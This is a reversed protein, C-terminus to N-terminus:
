KPSPGLSPPDLGPVIWAITYTIRKFPVLLAAAKRVTAPRTSPIRTEQALNACAARFSLTGARILTMKRKREGV